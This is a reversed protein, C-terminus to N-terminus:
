GHYSGGACLKQPLEWVARFKGSQIFSVCCVGAALQGELVAILSSALSPELTDRIGAYYKASKNDLRLAVVRARADLGELGYEISLM